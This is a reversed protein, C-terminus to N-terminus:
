YPPPSRVSLNVEGHIIQHHCCNDLSPHIGFDVFLNPQDTIILDVCSIGRPEINTTQDILQALDNSEVFENLAIGEQSDVDNPWWQRSRCNFDGTLIICHPKRDKIKGIIVQLSEQFINFEESSQNPSRSVM